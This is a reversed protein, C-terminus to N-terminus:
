EFQISWSKLYGTDQRYHDSVELAWEGFAPIALAEVDWHKTLHDGDDSNPKRLVQAKGTPDLLRIKLDGIYDHAIDVRIKVKGALGKRNVFLRSSIGSPDNDPIFHWENNTFTQTNQEAPNEEPVPLEGQIKTLVANADVIGSGCATLTCAKPTEEPFARATQKLLNEVRDPEINPSLSYMLSVLGAVHPAAMSTGQYYGYSTNESNASRSGTNITSLVGDSSGEKSTEGGPATIDVAAGYNSYYARGGQRNNAAVTIVGDCNAPAYRSAYDNDNGAAVVLTVGKARAEDIAEQYARTCKGYGGLSLNIVKAPTPNDPIGKVSYGAAWRIGEIIDSSYGGCHGLARIPLVKSHWAVGAVGLQNDSAAAITGAVHTGHWSSPTSWKPFGGGCSGATAWDGEDTPDADRGDFDRASDPDSIFDYGGLLNATLDDHPLIGTDIVAVVAELSGTTIDWAKPLNMGGLEEFFHWQEAYRDDNPIKQIHMILDPEAYEVNPDQNLQKLTPELEDLSQKSDLKLVVTGKSSLRKAALVTKAIAWNPNIASQDDSNVRKDQGRKFSKALESHLTKKYKIIIRDTKASAKAKHTTLAPDSEFATVKSQLAQAQPAILAQATIFAPVTILASVSLTCGTTLSSLRILKAM